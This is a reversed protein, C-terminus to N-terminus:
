SARQFVAALGAPAAFRNKRGWILLIALTLLYPLMLLLYPPIQVGRSQLQFQLAVAGGFLLAGVISRMPHWMGFIVLAAAIFGYGASMGEVWTRTVALSLQAGGIAAMCGGFFIAGYQILAPNRGTAFAVTTDEGVARLSLGWRTKYM